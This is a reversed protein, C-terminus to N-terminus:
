SVSIFYTCKPQLRRSVTEYNEADHKPERENDEDARRGEKCLIRLVRELYVHRHNREIDGDEALRARRHRTQMLLVEAHIFVAPELLNPSESRRVRGVVSKEHQVTAGAHDRCKREQ